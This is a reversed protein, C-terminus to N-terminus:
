NMRGSGAVAWHGARNQNQFEFSAFRRIERIFYLVRNRSLGVERKSQSGESREPDGSLAFVVYSDIFGFFGLPRWIRRVLRAAQAPQAELSLASVSACTRRGTCSM